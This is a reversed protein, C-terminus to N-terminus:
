AILSVLDEIFTMEFVTGMGIVNTGAEPRLIRTMQKLGLLCGKNGLSVGDSFISKLVESYFQLFEETATEEREANIFVELVLPMRVELTPIASAGSISFKLVDLDFEFLNGVPMDDSSPVSIPNRATYVMGETNGIRRFLESVLIERKLDSM